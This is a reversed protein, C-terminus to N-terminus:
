TNTGENESYTDDNEQKINYLEKLEKIVRDYNENSKIFFKKKKDVDITDRTYEASLVGEFTESLNRLCRNSLQLEVTTNIDDWRQTN